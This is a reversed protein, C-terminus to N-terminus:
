SVSQLIVVAGSLRQKRVRLVATKYGTQALARSAHKSGCRTLSRAIVRRRGHRYRQRWEREVSLHKTVFAVQYAFGEFIGTPADRAGRTQEAYSVLSQGENEVTPM